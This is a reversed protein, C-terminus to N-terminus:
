VAVSPVSQAITLTCPIILIMGKQFVIDIKAFIILFM